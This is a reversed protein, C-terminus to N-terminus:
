WNIKTSPDENRFSEIKEVRYGLNELEKKVVPNIYVDVWVETKGESAAMRVLEEVRSMQRLNEGKSIDLAIQRAEDSNLM